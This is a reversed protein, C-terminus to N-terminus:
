RPIEYFRKKILDEGLRATKLKEVIKRSADGKGYPNRMGKLSNKFENSLAREIAKKIAIRKCAAVDIINRGRVRGRQRDGINVVPLEFSPAETFGSSSNGLMLSASKLLSLYRLQGLSIFMKGLRPFKETFRRIKEIIVGGGTDANPFTFVWYIDKCRKLASLIETIQPSATGKELTVPHYTVVGIRKGAPLGLGACIRDKNMLDLKYINDLGPAGFVFVNKPDEGMQIVRNRYKEMATFHLHSLKTVAHRIAEDILGETAEGGHVHAVPIRFPIAAAVASLVEFRDGSVVIMDPKLREYVRAFKSVGIGISDSIDAERDSPVLMKVEAAIPLGSMRVERVTLGFKRSLHMGAVVLQLKLAPDGHIGKIVWYLVGYEARTGTIVCIKRKM